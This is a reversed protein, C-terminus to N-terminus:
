VVSKRDLRLAYSLLPSELAVFLEEITEWKPSEAGAKDPEAVTMSAQHDQVRIRHCDCQGANAGVAM